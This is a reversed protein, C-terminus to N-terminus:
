QKLCRSQSENNSFLTMLPTTLLQGAAEEAIDGGETTAPESGQDREAICKMGPFLLDGGHPAEGAVVANGFAKM